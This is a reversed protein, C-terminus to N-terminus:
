WSHLPREPLPKYGFVWNLGLHMSAWSSQDPIIIGLVNDGVLYLQLPGLNAHIGAGIHGQRGNAMSYALTLGLSPSAQVNYSATLSPYWHGDFLHGRGLLALRHRGGPAYAVSGYLKPSLHSRYTVTTRQEEFHDPLGDIFEEMNAVFGDDFFDQGDIGQYRVTGDLRLERGGQQWDIFGLDIVSLAISWRTGASVVMGADLAAGANNLNTRADYSGAAGGFSFPERPSTGGSTNAAQWLRWDAELLQHGARATDAVLAMSYHHLRQNALGFLVRGRLGLTIFGGLKRAYSVSLDRYHIVEWAAGSFDAPGSFADSGRLVLRALDEPYALYATAKDSVGLSIFDRDGRLGASVWELQLELGAMNRKDLRDLLRDEDWYVEDRADRRVVDGAVFGQNSLNAYLSSLLPAGAYVRPQPFQAPNAQSSQPIGQMWYLTNYAQSSAKQPALLLGGLLALLLTVGRATLGPGHSSRGTERVPKINAATVHPLDPMRNQKLSDAPDDGAVMRRGM